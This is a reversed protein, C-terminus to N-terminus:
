RLEFNATMALHDSAGNPCNTRYGGQGNNEGRGNEGKGNKGKKANSDRAGGIIECGRPSGDGSMFQRPHVVRVSKPDYHYGKVRGSKLDRGAAVFVHDLTNWEHKPHYYHTGRQDGPLNMIESDAAFIAEPGAALFDKLDLLPKLGDRIPSSRLDDNFDGLAIVLRGPNKATIQQMIERMSQAEQERWGDRVPGGAKSLWHSALVTVEGGAGTDITVEFIDRGFKRQGREVWEPRSVQHSKHSVIPLRSVIGPRIGRSDRSDAAMVYKYGAGNLGVDVMRELVEQNEVESVAMVDPMEGRIVEGLNRMKDTLVADTWRQKGNPTFEEDNTRPNDVTDFLNQLNYGMVKLDRGEARAGVAGLAVSFATFRAATFYFFGRM